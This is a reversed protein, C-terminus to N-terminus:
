DIRKITEAMQLFPDLGDAQQVFITLRMPTGSKVVFVYVEGDTIASKYVDAGNLLTGKTWTVKEVTGDKSSAKVYQEAQEEILSWDAGDDILEVTMSAKEEDLFIMDKGPEVAEAQYGNLINAQFPQNSSKYTFFSENPQESTETETRQITKAMTMFTDLWNDEKKTFVTLFMPADETVGIIYVVSSDVSAEYVIADEFPLTGEFPTAEESVAMAREKAYTEMQEKAEKPLLEIRMWQEQESEHMVVDKGPEEAELSFKPLLSITFPQNTSEVPTLELPAPAQKKQEKNEIPQKAPATTQENCASLLTVAAVISILLKSRQKM